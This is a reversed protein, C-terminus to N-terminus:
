TTAAFAKAVASGIRDLVDDPLVSPTNLLEPHARVFEAVDFDFFKAAVLEVFSMDAMGSPEPPAAVLPTQRMHLAKLIRIADDVLAQSSSGQGLEDVAKLLAYTFASLNNTSPTGAAATEDEQCAALLLGNVEVEGGEDGISKQAAFAKRDPEPMNWLAALAASSRIASRGFIKFSLQGPSFEKTSAEAPDPMWVKARALSIDDETFLLKNMGGSYCADLVITFVGEPLTQTRSSLEDDTLFAYPKDSTDSRVVLVEQVQDGQQLHHGHSSQFYVIRDGPGVGDVLWDLGDRVHGLTADGDHLERIDTFGYAERLLRCFSQADAVCSNLNNRPDGYDNIGVVLARRVPSTLDKAVAKSTSARSTSVAQSRGGAKSSGTNSAATNSGPTTNAGATAKPAAPTKQPSRPRRPAAGAYTERNRTTM